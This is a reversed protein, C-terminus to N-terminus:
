PCEPVVFVKTGVLLGCSAAASGQNVALEALGNANEYWVATGAPADAFTRVPQFCRDHARLLTDAPLNSARLGTAANGFPDLYIVEDLDAPWGNLDPPPDCRRGPPSKGLALKAAVPAFLDRGHFTPSLHQPRWTIEWWQAREAQRAVVNLLGNDPGVYWRSDAHLMVARRQTGVGPDVVCVFVSGPPLEPALAALLYGAARPNFQPADHLLDIVPLRPVERLLIAKVQGVYPGTWGYDTFLAIAPARNRGTKKAAMRELPLTAARTITRNFTAPNYAAARTTSPQINGATRL